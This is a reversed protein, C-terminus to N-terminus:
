GNMRSFNLLLKIGNQHSKEPHFQVGFINNKEISSIFDIGHNCYTYNDCDLKLGTKNGYSHLFYFSSGEEIDKFLNSGKLNLVKNWGMHPLRTGTFDLKEIKGDIWGLGRSSGEVSSEFFIHMGICIGLIPKKKKLTFDNLEHIIDLQMLKEILSDFKGIGPLIIKSVEQFDNKSEIIQTKINNEFFINALSNINGFGTNIIGIM